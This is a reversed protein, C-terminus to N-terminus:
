TSTLPPLGVLDRGAALERDVDAAPSPTDELPPLGVLERDEALESPVTASPPATPAPSQQTPPPVASSAVVSAAQATLHQGVEAGGYAALALGGAFLLASAHRARGTRSKRSRRSRTTSRCDQEGARAPHLSAAAAPLRADGGPAAILM